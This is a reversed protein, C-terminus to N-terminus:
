IGLGQAVADHFRARFPKIRTKDSGGPHVHNTLLVCVVDRDLDLWLSTGTFGLHGVAGRPGRGLRAGLSSGERSPTDWGLARESGPTEDRAVFREATNASLWPSHGALAELWARGLGAVDSPAAFLGAHGSVGGVAWANDDDVAGCLVEGGRAPSRRTAVFSVGARLTQARAPDLGPLFFTRALGLPALVEAEVARDLPVGALRELLLGLAIFGLDSYLARTGPPAELPEVALAAEVLERGRRFAGALAEAHPREGPPLFATRGVADRAVVEHWPRWAAMGSAHALLHRVTVGEKQGRFGPLWRAAPADLDLAGRDALRAVLSAVFLKTLSAVDFLETGHLPRAAPEVQAEGHVSEHALKGRALVVAALGPAVGERRGAELAALVPALGISARSGGAGDRAGPPAFRDLESTV